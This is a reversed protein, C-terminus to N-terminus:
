SVREDLADLREQRLALGVGGRLPLPNWAQDARLLDVLYQAEANDGVLNLSDPRRLCQEQASIKV